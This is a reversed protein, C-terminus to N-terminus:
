TTKVVLLSCPLHHVVKGPIRNSPSLRRLGTLGKNGTVLLDYGGRRAEDVLAQAPDGGAGLAVINLNSAEHQTAAEQAVREGDRGASLITLEAGVNAAVEAARAVALRATTSGDSGVLVKTIM